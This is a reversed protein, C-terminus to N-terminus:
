RATAASQRMSVTRHVSRRLVIQAPVAAPGAAQPLDSHAAWAALPWAAAGAPGDQEAEAVRLAGPAEVEEQLQQAAAPSSVAVAAQQQLEAVAGRVAVRLRLDEPDAAPQRADVTVEAQQALFAARVVALNAESEPGRSEDAAALRVV